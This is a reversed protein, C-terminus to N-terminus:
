SATMNPGAALVYQGRPEAISRLVPFLDTGLHAKSVFADAGNDLATAQYRIQSKMTMMVLLTQSLRNKISRAAAFDSLRLMALDMLVIDPKLTFAYAVAEGCDHAEGLIHFQAQTSFLQKLFTLHGQDNDVCLVTFM